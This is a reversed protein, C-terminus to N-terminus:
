VNLYYVFPYLDDTRATLPQCPTMYCYLTTASCWCLFERSCFLEKGTMRQRRPSREKKIIIIITIIIKNSHSSSVWIRAISSRSWFPIGSLVAAPWFGWCSMLAASNLLENEAFTGADDTPKPNVAVDAGLKPVFAVLTKGPCPPTKEVGADANPGDCCDPGNASAAAETGKEWGCVVVPRTSMPWLWASLTAM